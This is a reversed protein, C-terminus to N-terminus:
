GVIRRIVNEAISWLSQDAAASWLSLLSVIAAGVLAVGLVRGVRLPHTEYKEEVFWPRSVDDSSGVAHAVVVTVDDDGGRERALSVLKEAAVRPHECSKVCELLEADTVVKTLGDSCILLRDGVSMAVETTDVQLEAPGGVYRTLYHRSPHVLAETATLQGTRVLDAVLNHDRSIQLITTGYVVYARSDGVHGLYLRDNTLIAVTVTSGMGRRHGDGASAARVERNAGRIIRKLLDDYDRSLGGVAVMGQPAVARAVHDVVMKSAIHGAQVGGLGDAVVVVLDIEAALDPPLLVAYRDENQRRVSGKVAAAGVEITM